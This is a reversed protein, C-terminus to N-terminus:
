NEIRVIDEIAYSELGPHVIICDEFFEVRDAEVTKQGDATQITIEMQTNTEKFACGGCLARIPWLDM